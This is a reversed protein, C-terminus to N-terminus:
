DMDASMNVKLSSMKTAIAAGFVFLQTIISHSWMSIFKLFNSLM